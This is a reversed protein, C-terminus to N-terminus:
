SAPHDVVRERRGVAVRARPPPRPPRQPPRTGPASSELSPPPRLFLPLIVAAAKRRVGRPTARLHVVEGNRVQFFHNTNSAYDCCRFCFGVFRSIRNCVLKPPPVTPDHPRIFPRASSPRRRGRKRRRVLRPTMMATDYLNRILSPICHLVIPHKM